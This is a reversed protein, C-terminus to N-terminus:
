GRLDTAPVGRHAGARGGRRTHAEQPALPLDACRGKGARPLLRFRGSRPRPPPPERDSPQPLMAVRPSVAQMVVVRIAVPRPPTPECARPRPTASLPHRNPATSRARRDGAADTSGGVGSPRSVGVLLVQCGYASTRGSVGQLWRCLCGEVRRRRHSPPSDEKREDTNRRPRGVNIRHPHIGLVLLVGEGAHAVSQAAGRATPGGPEDVDRSGALPCRGRAQATVTAYPFPATRPGGSALADPAPRAHWHARDAHRAASAADVAYPM